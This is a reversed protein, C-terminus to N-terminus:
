ITPKPMPEVYFVNVKPLSVREYRRGRGIDDLSIIRMRCTDKIGNSRDKLKCVKCANAKVSVEMVRYRNGRKDRITDYKDVIM